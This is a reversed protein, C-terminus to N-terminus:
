RSDSAVIVADRYATLYDRRVSQLDFRQARDRAGTGLRRCEDPDDLLEGILSGLRGADGPLVYRASDGAVARFSELDSAVVACGSAMAEVLVIGFSEGGLNPACFVAAESLERRKAEESVRGLFTVGRPGSARETGMIRLETDPRSAHVLPWAQLLPDLGKRPEDRGLFVVRRRRARSSRYGSVDIGNPIIRPEVLGAVASAAVPSVATVVAARHLLRRLPGAARRYLGRVLRSPDAHFTAVVPPVSWRLVAPAVVPMLPEHLHVADADAVAAVARRAARPDLTVPAQSRNAPVRVVAGVHRTGAPGGDGPAVAWADHGDRRLGVVLSVVQDQVGGPASLDYPSVVAIKM